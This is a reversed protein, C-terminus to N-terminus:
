EAPLKQIIDALDTPGSGQAVTGLRSFVLWVFLLVSCAILISAVAILPEIQPWGKLRLTLAGLLVPVGLNYAWFQIAAVRGETMSPQLTGILGFLAM